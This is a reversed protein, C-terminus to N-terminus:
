RALGLYKMMSQPIVQSNAPQTCWVLRDHVEREHCGASALGFRLWSYWLRSPKALGALSLKQLVRGGRSRSRVTYLLTAMKPSFIIRRFVFLRFNQNMRHSNRRNRQVSFARFETGLGEASSLFALFVTGFRKTSSFFVRFKTIEHRVFGCFFFSFGRFEMGFWKMSSFFDWFKTIENELIVHFIFISPNWELDNRLLSFYESNREFGHQASSFVKLLENWLMWSCLFVLLHSKFCM